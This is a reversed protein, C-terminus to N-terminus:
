LWSIKSQWDLFFHNFVDFMTSVLARIEGKNNKNGCEGFSAKNEDSNPVEARSGDVAFVM